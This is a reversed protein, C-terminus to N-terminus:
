EDCTGSPERYSPIPSRAPTANSQSRTLKIEYRLSAVQSRSDAVVSSLCLTLAVRLWMGREVDQALVDLLVSHAPHCCVEAESAALKAAMEAADLEAQDREREAVELKMLLEQTFQSGGCVETSFLLPTVCQTCVTHMQAVDDAASRM